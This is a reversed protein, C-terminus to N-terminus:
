ARPPPVAPREPRHLERARFHAWSIEQFPPPVEGDATQLFLHVCIPMNCCTGTPGQAPPPCDGLEHVMEACCSQTPGAALVNNPFALAVLGFSLCIVLFLRPLFSFRYM